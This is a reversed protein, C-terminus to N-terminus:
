ARPARPARGGASGRARGRWPAVRLRAGGGAGGSGGAGGAPPLQFDLGGPGPGGVDDGGPVADAGEGVGGSWCPAHGIGVVVGGLPWHFGRGGPGGAPGSDRGRWLIVIVLAVPATTVARRDHRM